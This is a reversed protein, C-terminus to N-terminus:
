RQFRREVTSPAAAPQDTESSGRDQWPLGVHERVEIMESELRGIADEIQLRWNHSPGDTAPEPELLDHVTTGVVEAALQLAWAPIAAKGTIWRRYSSASPSGNASQSLLRAFANASRAGSRQQARQLAEIALQNYADVAIRPAYRWIRRPRRLYPKVNTRKQSNHATYSAISGFRALNVLL